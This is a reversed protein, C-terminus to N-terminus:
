NILKVLENIVEDSQDKLLPKSLDLTVIYEKGGKQAICLEGDCDLACYITPIKDVWRLLHLINIPHGIIDYEDSLLWYGMKQNYIQNRNNTINYGDITLVQNEHKIECGETLEMLEPLAKRIESELKELNNMQNDGKTSIYLNNREKELYENEVDPLLHGYSEFLQQIATKQKM